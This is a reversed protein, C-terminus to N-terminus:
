PPASLTGRPSRTAPTMTMSGQADSDLTVRLCMQADPFELWREASCTEGSYAEHPVGRRFLMLCLLLVSTCTSVRM